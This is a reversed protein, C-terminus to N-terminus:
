IRRAAIDPMLKAPQVKLATALRAITEIRVSRQGREILSIHTRHLKAADALAEQSLGRKERLERRRLGFQAAYSPPMNVCSGGGCVIM